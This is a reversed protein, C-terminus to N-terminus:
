LNSVDFWDSLVEDVATADDSDSQSSQQLQILEESSSELRGDVVEFGAAFPDYSTTSVNSSVPVDTVPSLNTVPLGGTAPAAYAVTTGYAVQLSEGEGVARNARNLEAIKNIVRLADLPTIVGDGNVDIYDPPATTITSVTFPVNAGNERRFAAIRNIVRLADLPSIVGNANVDTQFDPIPNQYRSRGLNFTVTVLNGVRGTPDIPRYTFSDTDGTQGSTNTYTFTGNASVAVTGRTPQTVSSPDVEIKRTTGAFVDSDPDSDNGLLGQTPEQMEFKAGVPVNYFDAVAIPADPVSAVTLVFADRVEFTGDTASIEIDATGSANADLTITMTDGTFTIKDILTSAAIQAATPNIIEDAGKGLRTVKYTLPGTDPDYFVDRLNRTILEDEQASLTGLSGIVTPPDPTDNVTVPIQISSSPGNGVNTAVVNLTVPSGATTPKFRPLTLRLTSVGSANDFLIESRVTSSDSSTVTFRSADGEPDVFWSSLNFNFVQETDKSEDFTLSTRTSNGEIGVFVPADNSGGINLIVLGTSSSSPSGSDRVTYTFQDQGSFNTPPTYILSAKDASLRLNGRRLTLNNPFVSVDLSLSQGAAVEDAPGPLDNTLIGGAGNIPIVLEKDEDGSFVDTAVIPADNVTTINVTITGMTTASQVLQNSDNPNDAVVYTFRDPGPGPFNVPPTYQLNGNPLITLSGGLQTQFGQGAVGASQIVLSQTLENDPGPVYGSTLEALTFETLQDEPITRVITSSSGNFFPRDNVPNVTLNVTMLVPSVLQTAANSKVDTVRFTFQANGFFDPEPTFSFTGDAFLILSGATEGSATKIVRPSDTPGSNVDERYVNVPDGNPDKIKALAGNDNASAPTLTGDVDRAQLVTDEDVTYSIVSNSPTVTPPAGPLVTLAYDEVEGSLALGTPTLGGEASVRFRAYTTTPSTPVPSTSPVNITFRLPTDGTANSFDAGPTNRNIIQEGADNFDGDFNFDIWAELVGTGTVYVEIPMPVFRNLVGTPNNQSTFVVGDEDDNIIRVTEDSSNVASPDFVIANAPNLPSNKIAAVLAQALLAKTLPKTKDITVPYNQEAFIGDSDLEFTITSVGTSVTFSNGEM